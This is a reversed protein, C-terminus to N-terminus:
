VGPLIPPDRKLGEWIGSVIGVWDGFGGGPRAHQSGSNVGSGMGLTVLLVMSIEFGEENRLLLLGRCMGLHEVSIELPGNGQVWSFGLTVGWVTGEGTIVSVRNLLM